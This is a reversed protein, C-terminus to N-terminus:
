QRQFPSLAWRACYFSARRPQSFLFLLKKGKAREFEEYFCIPTKKEGHWDTNFCTWCCALQLNYIQKQKYISPGFGFPHAKENQWSFFMSGSCIPAGLIFCKKEIHAIRHEREDLRKACSFSKAQPPM